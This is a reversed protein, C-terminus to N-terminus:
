EIVAFSFPKCIVEEAWKENKPDGNSGISGRNMPEQTIDVRYKGEPLKGLPMIAFHSTVIALIHPVFQYRIQIVSGRRKVHRVHVFSGAQYSFFVLSIDEGM